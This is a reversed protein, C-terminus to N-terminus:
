PPTEEHLWVLVVAKGETGWVQWGKAIYERAMGLPVRKHMHDAYTSPKLKYIEVGDGFNTLQEFQDEQDYSM